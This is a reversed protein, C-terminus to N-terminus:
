KVEMFRKKIFESTINECSKEDKEPRYSEPLHRWAAVNCKVLGDTFNKGNWFARFPYKGGPISVLYLELKKYEFEPNEEPEGPLREEVSIWGDSSPVNIDEAIHKKIIDKVWGISIYDDCTGFSEFEIAHYDIERLIKELVSM